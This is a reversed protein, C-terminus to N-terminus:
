SVSLHPLPIYLDWFGSRSGSFFFVKSLFFGFDSGKFQQFWVGFWFQFRRGSLVLSSSYALFINLFGFLLRFIGVSFLTSAFRYRKLVASYNFGELVGSGESLSVVRSLYVAPAAYTVKRM